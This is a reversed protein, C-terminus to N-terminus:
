VKLTAANTFQWPGKGLMTCYHQSINQPAFHGHLGTNTDNPCKNEDALLYGTIPFQGRFEGLKFLTQVLM